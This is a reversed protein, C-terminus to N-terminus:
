YGQPADPDIGREIKAMRERHRIVLKVISTTCGCVIAVIVMLFPWIWPLSFFTFWDRSISQGLPLAHHLWDSSVRILDM